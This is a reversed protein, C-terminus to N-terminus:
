RIFYHYSGNVAAVTYTSQALKFNIFSINSGNFILHLSVGFVGGGGKLAKREYPLTQIIPITGFQSM